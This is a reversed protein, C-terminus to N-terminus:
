FRSIEKKLAEPNAGIELMKIMHNALKKINVFMNLKQFLTKRDMGSSSSSITRRFKSSPKKEKNGQRLDDLGFKNKVPKTQQSPESLEFANNLCNFFVPIKQKM